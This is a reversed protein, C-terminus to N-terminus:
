EDTWVAWSVVSWSPLDTVKEVDCKSCAPILLSVALNLPKAQRCALAHSFDRLDFYLAHRERGPYDAVLDDQTRRARFPAPLAADM